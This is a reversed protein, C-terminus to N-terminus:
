KFKINTKKKLNQFEIVKSSNDVNRNLLQFYLQILNEDFTIKILNSKELKLLISNIDEIRYKAVDAIHDIALYADEGDDILKSEIQFNYYDILLSFIFAEELGVKYFLGINLNIATPRYECLKEELIYDM